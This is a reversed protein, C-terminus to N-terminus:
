LVKEMCIVNHASLPVEKYGMKIYFKIAHKSKNYVEFRVKTKNRQKCIEEIYNICASGVGSNMIYPNVAFKSLYVAGEDPISEFVHITNDSLTFTAVFADEAKVIYVQKNETDEAIREMGYPTAWHMLGFNEVMYTGAAELISYVKEILESNGSEVRIFEM